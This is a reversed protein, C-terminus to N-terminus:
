TTRSCRELKPTRVDANADTVSVAAGLGAVHAGINDIREDFVPKRHVFDVGVDSAVDTLHFGAPPRNRM